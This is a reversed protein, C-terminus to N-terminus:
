CTPAGSLQTTSLPQVTVSTDVLAPSGGSGDGRAAVGVSSGTLTLIAAGSAIPELGTALITWGALDAASQGAPTPIASSSRLTYARGDATVVWARCTWDTATGTADFTGQTARLLQGDTALPVLAVGTASRVGGAVSDALIQAQSSANGSGTVQKGGNLSAVLMWGVIGLVGVMLGSAILLEM